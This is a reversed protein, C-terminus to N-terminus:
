RGAGAQLKAINGYTEEVAAVPGSIGQADAHEAFNEVLWAAVRFPSGTKRQGDTTEVVVKMPRPSVVDSRYHDSSMECYTM